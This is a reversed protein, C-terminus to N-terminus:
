GAGISASAYVRNQKRSIVALAAYRGLALKVDMLYNQNGSIGKLAALVVAGDLSGAAPLLALELDEADAVRLDEIRLLRSEPIQYIRFRGSAAHGADGGHFEGAAVVDPTAGIEDFPPLPEDVAVDPGAYVPEEEEQAPPPQARAAAPPPAARKGAPPAQAAPPEEGRQCGALALILVLNPAVKNRM